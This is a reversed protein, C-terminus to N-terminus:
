SWLFLQDAFSHNHLGQFSILHSNQTRTQFSHIARSVLLFWNLLPPLGELYFRIKDIPTMNKLADETNENSVSGDIFIM